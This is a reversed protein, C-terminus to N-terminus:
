LPNPSFPIQQCLQTVENKRLVKRDDKLRGCAKSAGLISGTAHMGEQLFAQKALIQRNKVGQRRCSTNKEPRPWSATEGRMWWSDPMVSRQVYKAFDSLYALYCLTIEDPLFRVRPM